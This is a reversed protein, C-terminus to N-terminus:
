DRPAFRRPSGPGRSLRRGRPGPEGRRWDAVRFSSAGAGAGDSGGASAAGAASAGAMAGADGSDAGGAGRMACSGYGGPLVVMM